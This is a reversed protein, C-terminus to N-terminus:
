ALTNKYGGFFSLYRFTLEACNPYNYEISQESIDYGGGFGASLDATLKNSLRPEYTFGVGQLGLDIKALSSLRTEAREQGYSASIFALIAISLIIKKM